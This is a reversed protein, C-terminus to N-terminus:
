GGKLKEEDEGAGRAKAASRAAKFALFAVMLSVVILIANTGSLLRVLLDLNNHLVLAGGVLLGCWLMASLTAYGIVAVFRLGALAAAIFFFARLGPFFRNLAIWWPGREQFKAVVRRVGRQQAEPLKSVGEVRVIFLGIGFALASGLVSGAVAAAYVTWWSMTAELAVLGAAVTVTDGPVPPFVYEAGSGAAVLGALASNPLEALREIWLELTSM